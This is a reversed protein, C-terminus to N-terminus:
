WVARDASLMADGYVSTTSTHIFRANRARAAELLYRTGEVNVAQFEEDSFQGIHPAHLAASHVVAEVKDVLRHVLDRDAVSGQHTTRPGALLDLGLVDHDAALQRAIERGLQGSSGTVLVRM